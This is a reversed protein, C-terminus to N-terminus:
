LFAGFFLTTIAFRPWLPRLPLAKSFWIRPELEISGGPLPTQDGLDITIGGEIRAVIITRGDSDSGIMHSCWLSPQPWGAAEEVVLDRALQGRDGVPPHSALSWRPIED